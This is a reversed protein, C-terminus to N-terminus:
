STGVHDAFCNVVLDDTLSSMFATGTAEVEKNQPILGMQETNGVILQRHFRAVIGKLAQVVRTMQTEDIAEFFLLSDDKLSVCFCAATTKDKSSARSSTKMDMWAIEDVSNLKRISSIELLGFINSKKTESDVWVFRPHEAIQGPRLHLLGPRKASANTSHHENLFLQIGM